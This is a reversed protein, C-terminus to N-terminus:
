ATQAQDASSPDKSTEGTESVRRVSITRDILRIAEVAVGREIMGYEAKCEVRRENFVCTGVPRLPTLSRGVCGILAQMGEVPMRDEESLVPNKPSIRRGVPTRHWNHVAFRMGFIFLFVSGILALLGAISSVIMTQYLAYGVVLLGVLGLIGHAPLFVEAIIICVGLAYLFVIMLWSTM